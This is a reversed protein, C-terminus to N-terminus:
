IGTKVTHFQFLNWSIGSLFLTKSRQLYKIKFSFVPNDVPLNWFELNGCPPPQFVHKLTNAFFPPLYGDRQAPDDCGGFNEQWNADWASCTNPTPNHETPLEGVWFVTAVVNRKWGTQSLREAPVERVKRAAAPVGFPDSLSPLAARRDELFREYVGDLREALRAGAASGLLALGVTGVICTHTKMEESLYAVM